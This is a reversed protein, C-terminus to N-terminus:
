AASCISTTSAAVGSRDGPQSQYFGQLVTSLLRDCTGVLEAAAALDREPM